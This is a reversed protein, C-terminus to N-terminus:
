SVGNGALWRSVDAHFTQQLCQSSESSLFLFVSFSTLCVFCHLCDYCCVKENSRATASLGSKLCWYFPDMEDNNLKELLLNPILIWPNWSQCLQLKFLAILWWGCQCSVQWAPIREKWVQKQRRLKNANCGCVFGPLAIREKLGVIRACGWARCRINIKDNGVFM